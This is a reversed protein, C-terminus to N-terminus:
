KDEEVGSYRRRGMHLIVIRAGTVGIDDINPAPARFFWSSEPVERANKYLYMYITDFDGPDPDKVHGYVSFSVTYYGPTLCTFIGSDLDLEGGGGGPRDANNYNALFSEFTVTQPSRIADSQWASILVIPLDRLSPEALAISNSFNSSISKRSSEEVEMRMKSVSEELRSERKELEEKEEKMEDELEDVRRELEKIKEELEKKEKVNKEKEHKMREEM